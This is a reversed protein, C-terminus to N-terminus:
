LHFSVTKNAKHFMNHKRKDSAKSQEKTNVTTKGPVSVEQESKTFTSYIQHHNEIKSVYKCPKTDYKDEEVYYVEYIRKLVPLGYSMISKSTVGLYQLLINLLWEISVLCIHNDFLLKRVDSSFWNINDTVVFRHTTEYDKFRPIYDREVYSSYVPASNSKVEIAFHMDRIFIHVDAGFGVKRKWNYSDLPNHIINSEKIPLKKLKSVVLNETTLGQWERFTLM